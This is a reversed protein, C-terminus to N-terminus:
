RLRRIIQANKARASGSLRNKKLWRNEGAVVHQVITKAGKSVGDDVLQIAVAEQLPVLHEYIKTHEDEM